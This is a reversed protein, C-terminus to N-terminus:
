KRNILQKIEKIKEYQINGELRDHNKCVATRVGLFDCDLNILKYIDEKSLSGALAVLLDNKHAKEVFFHLNDLTQHQLLSKKDKILTDLMVIDANSKIAVKIIEDPSLGGFNKADGYGAVVIKTNQSIEDVSRKISKMLNVADKVNKSGKIGAKIYDLNMSALGYAALSATGALNPLDGLTASIEIDDPMIKKIQKIKWPFSAGLSGEEPNKIDIIDTGGKIAEKSETINKPSILLKM